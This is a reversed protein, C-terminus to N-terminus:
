DLLQRIAASSVGGNRKHDARAAAVEARQEDTFPEDDVLVNALAAPVRAPRRRVPAGFDTWIKGSPTTDVEPELLDAPGVQFFACLADLMEASPIITIRKGAKVQGAVWSNVRAKSTGLAEAIQVQNVSRTEMLERLKLRM